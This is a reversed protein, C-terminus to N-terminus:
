FTIPKPELPTKIPTEWVPKQTKVVFDPTKGKVPEYIKTLRRAYSTLWENYEGIHYHELNDDYYSLTTFYGNKDDYTVFRIENNFIDVTAIEESIHRHDSSIHEEIVIYGDRMYPMITEKINKFKAMDDKAKDWEANTIPKVKVRESVFDGFHLIKM